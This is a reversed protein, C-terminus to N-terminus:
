GFVHDLYEKMYSPVVAHLRYQCVDSVCNGIKKFRWLYAEQFFELESRGSRKVAEALLLEM